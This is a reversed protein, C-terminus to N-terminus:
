LRNFGGYAYFIASFGLYTRVANHLKCGLFICPWLVQETICAVAEIVLAVVDSRRIARFARNVSLTETMSGSSAVAARRRIGATDILRFKQFCTFMKFYTLDLNLLFM